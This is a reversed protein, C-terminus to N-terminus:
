KKTVIDFIFGLLEEMLPETVDHALHGRKSVFIKRLEDKQEDTLKYLDNVHTLNNELWLAVDGHLVLYLQDNKM